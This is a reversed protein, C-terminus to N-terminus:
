KDEPEVGALLMAIYRPLSQGEYLTATLALGAGIHGKAALELDMEPNPLLGWFIMQDGGPGLSDSNQLLGRLAPAASQSLSLIERAVVQDGTHGELHIELMGPATELLHRVSEYSGGEVFEETYYVELRLPGSGQQEGDSALGLARALALSDFAQREPDAHLPTLRISIGAAELEGPGRWGQVALQPTEPYGVPVSVPADRHARRLTATLTLGGLTIAFVLLFLGRGGMTQAAWHIL